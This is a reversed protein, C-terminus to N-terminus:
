GETYMIVHPVRQHLRNLCQAALQYTAPEIRGSGECSCFLYKNVKNNKEQKQKPLTVYVDPRQISDKSCLLWHVASTLWYFFRIFFNGITDSTKENHIMTYM